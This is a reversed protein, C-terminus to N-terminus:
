RNNNNNRPRYVRVPGVSRPRPSNNNLIDIIETILPIRETTVTVTRRETPKYIRTQTVEKIESRGSGTPRYIYNRTTTIQSTM